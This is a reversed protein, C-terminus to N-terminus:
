CVQEGRSCQKSATRARMGAGTSSSNVCEPKRSNPPCVVRAGGGASAFAARLSAYGPCERAVDEDNTTGTLSPQADFRASALRLSSAAQEDGSRIAAVATAAVECVAGALSVDSALDEMRYRADAIREVFSNWTVWHQLSKLLARRESDTFNARAGTEKGHDLELGAPGGLLRRQTGGISTGGGGRSHSSTVANGIATHRDVYGGQQFLWGNTVRSAVVDLPNRM